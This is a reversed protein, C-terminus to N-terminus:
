KKMMYNTILINLNSFDFAVGGCVKKDNHNILEYKNNNKNVVFYNCINDNYVIHMSHYKPHEPLVISIIDCGVMNIKNQSIRFMHLEFVPMDKFNAAFHNYMDCMFKEKEKSISNVVDKYNMKLSWTMFNEILYDCFM